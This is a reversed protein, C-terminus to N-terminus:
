NILNRNSHVDVLNHDFIHIIKITKDKMPNRM